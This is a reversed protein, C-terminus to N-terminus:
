SKAMKQSFQIKEPNVNKSVGPKPHCMPTTGCQMVLPQRMAGHPFSVHCLLWTTHITGGLVHIWTVCTGHFIHYMALHITSHSSSFFFPLPPPPLFLFPFLFSFSFLFSPLTHSISLFFLCHSSFFFFSRYKGERDEALRDNFRM